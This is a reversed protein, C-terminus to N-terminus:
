DSVPVSHYLKGDRLALAAHGSVTHPVDAGLPSVLAMLFVQNDEGLTGCFSLCISDLASPILPVTNSGWNVPGSLVM